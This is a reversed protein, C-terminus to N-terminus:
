AGLDNPPLGDRIPKVVTVLKGLADLNILASTAEEDTMSPMLVLVDDKTVTDLPKDFAQILAVVKAENTNVFSNFDLTVDMIRDAHEKEEGIRDQYTKLTNPM